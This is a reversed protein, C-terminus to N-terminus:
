EGAQGFEKVIGGWMVETEGLLKEFAEVETVKRSADIREKTTWANAMQSKQSSAEAVGYIFGTQTDIILASATTKVRAERNSFVGLTITSLARDEGEVWFETDLTYVLLMGARVKSAAVRVDKESHMREPLLLRNLRVVGRVNELAGLRAYADPGEVDSDLAASFKGHGYSMYDHHRYGSEQLRVVAMSVPFTAVPEREFGERIEPDTFDAVEVPGSPAIYRHSACGGLGMMLGCLVVVCAVLRSAQFRIGIGM